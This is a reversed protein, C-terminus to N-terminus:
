FLSNFGVHVKPRALDFAENNLKGTALSLNLLGARTEFTMGVGIGLSRNWSDDILQFTSMEVFPLSFYSNKGALLRYELTLISFAKSFFAQEDFGRLSQNGGLRYLENQVAKGQILKYASNSQIMVTTQKTIKQFYATKLALQLSLSSNQLTDYSNLFDVSENKISQITGNPIISRIGAGLSTNIFYGRSPNNLYDTKNVDLLLSIGDLKVDLIEPLQQSILLQNTDIEILRSRDFIGLLKLRNQNSLPFILGAATKIEYYELSRRFYEFSGDIGLPLNFPYLMNYALIMEQHEPRLREFSFIFAEGFGLKNELKTKIDFSLFLNQDELDDTPIVGFVVDFKSTNKAKLDLEITAWTNFVAIEPASKLNLFALQDLKNPINTVKSLDFPALPEIEFYQHLFRKRIKANGTIALTDFYMKVGPDIHWAGIITSQNVGLSDIYLSAFPYGTNNYYDVMSQLASASKIPHYDTSLTQPKIKLEELLLLPINGLSLGSPDYKPGSHLQIVCTDKLFLISDVNAEYHAKDFLLNKAEEAIQYAAISDSFKGQKKLKKYTADTIITYNWQSHVSTTEGVFCSLVLLYKILQYKQTLWMKQLYLSDILDRLYRLLFIYEYEMKCVPKDNNYNESKSM